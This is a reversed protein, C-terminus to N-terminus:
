KKEPFNGCNERAWAMLLQSNMNTVKVGLDNAKERLGASDNTSCTDKLIQDCFQCANRATTGRRTAAKDGNFISTSKIGEGRNGLFAM